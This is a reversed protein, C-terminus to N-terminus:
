ARDGSEPAEAIKENEKIGNTEQSGCEDKEVKVWTYNGPLPKEEEFDFNWREKAQLM